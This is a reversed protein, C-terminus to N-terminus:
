TSGRFWRPLGILDNLLWLLIPVTVATYAATPLAWRIWILGVGLPDFGGVVVSRITEAALVVLFLLAAAVVPDSAEVAEKLRTTLYALTAWSLSTVGLLEPRDVDVLLGLFFGIVIGFPAGKALTLYFVIAAMLDPQVGAIAIGAGITLRFALAAYVALALRLAFRATM